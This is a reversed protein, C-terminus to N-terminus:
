HVVATGEYVQLTMPQNYFGTDSYTGGKLWLEGGWTVNSTGEDFTNYPTGLDGNETGAYGADCYTHDSPTGYPYSVDLTPDTGPLTTLSYWGDQWGDWGANIHFYPSASDRYGDCVMTHTSSCLVVPVLAKISSVIPTEHSSTREITGRYYFSNNMVTASPWAGSEGVEYDMNVMVGCHYMLDAVQQNASTLSTLPMNGWSYTAGLTVTHYYNVGACMDWYNNAGTGANPWSFYRMLIAM